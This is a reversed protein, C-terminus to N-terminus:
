IGYFQRPTTQAAAVMVHSISLWGRPAVFNPCSRKFASRFPITRFVASHSDAVNGRWKLEVPANNAPGDASGVWRVEADRGFRDRVVEFNSLTDDPRAIRLMAASGAEGYLLGLQQGRWGRIAFHRRAHPTPLALFPLVDRELKQEIGLDDVEIVRSGVPICSELASEVKTVIAQGSVSALQIAPADVYCGLALSEPFYVNTHGDDLQAAFAQMERYYDIPEEAAMVKPVAELYTADWDLAPVQHFWAFNYDAEKWFKSLGYLRDVQSIAEPAPCETAPAEPACMVSGAVALAVSAFRM